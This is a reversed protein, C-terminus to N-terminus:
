MELLGFKLSRNGTLSPPLKFPSFSDCATCVDSYSMLSTSDTGVALDTTDFDKRHLARVDIVVIGVVNLPM